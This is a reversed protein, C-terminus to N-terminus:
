FSHINIYKYKPLTTGEIILFPFTDFLMLTVPGHLLDRPDNNTDSSQITLTNHYEPITSLGDSRRYTCLIGRYPHM